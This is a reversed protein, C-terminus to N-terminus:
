TGKKARITLKISVNDKILDDKMGEFVIGFDKRNIALDADVDAGDGSVRITAPFTVSKTVGHLELNGTVTHSAGGEGGAKIATSTFRAKPFKEVDFFDPSKLHGVLKQNYGADKVDENTISTLDAVVEGGSLLNKKFEFMGGKFLIKGNHSGALKKGTWLAQSKAVDLNAHTSESKKPSAHALSLTTLALVLTLVIKM